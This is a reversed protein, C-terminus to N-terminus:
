HDVLHFLNAVLLTKLRSLFDASSELGHGFECLTFLVM